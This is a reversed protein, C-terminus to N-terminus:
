FPLDEGNSLVEFDAPDTIAEGSNSDSNNKGGCFSAENVVIETAVRNNGNRDTYKRTQIEGAVAILDGQKFFKCIFEATSKWAVCYLFDTQRDGEKPQYRRDVAICFSTVTVRNITAKLEPDATLRGMLVVKNLM